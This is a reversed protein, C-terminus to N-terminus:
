RRDVVCFDANRDAAHDVNAVRIPPRAEARARHCLDVSVPAGRMARDPFALEIVRQHVESNLEASVDFRIAKISRLAQVLECADARIVCVGQQPVLVRSMLQPRRLARVAQLALDGIVAALLLTVCASFAISRRGGRQSM